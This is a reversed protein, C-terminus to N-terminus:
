GHPESASQAAVFGRLVGRSEDSDDAGLAPDFTDNILTVTLMLQEGDLSSIASEEGHTVASSNVTSGNATANGPM